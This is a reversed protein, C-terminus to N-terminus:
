INAQQFDKIKKRRLLLKNNIIKAGKRKELMIFIKQSVCLRLLIKYPIHKQPAFIKDAIFNLLEM